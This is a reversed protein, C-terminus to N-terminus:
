AMQLSPAKADDVENSLLRFAEPATLFEASDFRNIRVQAQLRSMLEAAGESPTETLLVFYLGEPGRAVLDTNRLEKGLFIRLEEAQEADEEIVVLTLSDKYRTSRACEETIRLRLYWPAYFGTVQEYIVLRRTSEVTQTVKWTLLERQESTEAKKFLSLAKM